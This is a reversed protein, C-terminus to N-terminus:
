LQNFDLDLIPHKTWDSHNFHWWEHKIGHFNQEHMRTRLLGRAERSEATGGEYDIYSRKTTEDFDSPMQIAAGTKLDFLGLDVACGRNHVSGKAPDAVFIRNEVAIEDWFIKTVSWPRYGDFILLGYGDDKLRHHVKILDRAVHELLFAKAVPYVKRNIFNKDTAYRIDFKLTPELKELEVLCHNM